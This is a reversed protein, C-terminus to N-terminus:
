SRCLSVSQLVELAGVVMPSPQFLMALREIIRYSMVLREEDLEILESAVTGFEAVTTWVASAPAMITGTASVHISEGDMALISLTPPLPL